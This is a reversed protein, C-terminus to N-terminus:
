SLALLGSVPWIDSTQSTRDYFFVKWWDSPPFLGTIHVTCLFLSWMFTQKIINGQHWYFCLEHSLYFSFNNFSCTCDSFILSLPLKSFSGREACWNQFWSCFLFVALLFSTLPQSRRLRWLCLVFPPIVFSLGFLEADPSRPPPGVVGTKDAAIFVFGASGSRGDESSSFWSPSLHLSPAHFILEEKLCVRFTSLLIHVDDEALIYSSKPVQEMFDANRQTNHALLKSLDKM